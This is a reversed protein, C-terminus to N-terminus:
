LRFPTCLWCPHFPPMTTPRGRRRQLLKGVQKQKRKGGFIHGWSLAAARAAGAQRARQHASVGARGAAARVAAAQPALQRKQQGAGEKQKAFM